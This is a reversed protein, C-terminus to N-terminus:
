MNVRGGGGDGGGGDVDGSESGVKSNYTHRFPPLLVYVFPCSCLSCHFDWRTLFHPLLHRHLHQTQHHHFSSPQGLVDQIPVVEELRQFNYFYFDQRLIYHDM